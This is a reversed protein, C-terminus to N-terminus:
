RAANHTDCINQALEKYPLDGVILVVQKGVKASVGYDGHGMGRDRSCVQWKAKVVREICKNIFDILEVRHSSKKRKAWDSVQGHIWLTVSM